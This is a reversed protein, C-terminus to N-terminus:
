FIYSTQKQQLRERAARTITKMLANFQRYAAVARTLRFPYASFTKEFHAMWHEALAASRKELEALVRRMPSARIQRKSTGEIARILSVDALYVLSCDRFCM